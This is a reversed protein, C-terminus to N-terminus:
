FLSRPEHKQLTAAFLQYAIYKL